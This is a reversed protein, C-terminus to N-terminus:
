KEATSAPDAILVGHATDAHYEGMFAYQGPELARVRVPLQRGGAIVKEVGLPGSEFEEATPDDNHVDIVFARGAPVHLEAPQFVHGSITIQLRPPEDAWAGSASATLALVLLAARM